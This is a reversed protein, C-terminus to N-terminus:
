MNCKDCIAYSILESWFRQHCEIKCDSSRGYLAYGGGGSELGGRGWVLFLFRQHCKVTQAASRSFHMGGIVGESRVGFEECFIRENHVKFKVNRCYM